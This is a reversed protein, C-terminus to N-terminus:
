GVGNTINTAMRTLSSQLQYLQGLNAFATAQSVLGSALGSPDLGGVMGAVSGSAAVTGNGATIATGTAGQALSIATQVASVDSSAVGQFTQITSTATVVGGIATTVGPLNLNAGIQVLSNVDEGVAQDLGILATLIPSTQDQVVTCSISYPIEYPQRFDGEFSDVLVSYRFTSFALQQVQGGVRLFDLSRARFEASSGRFRGSWRIPMDDRGMADIIRQGGPLKHTVLVQQGGFNIKEPVEFDAFLVGGLTLAVTM